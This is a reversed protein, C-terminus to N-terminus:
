GVSWRTHASTSLSVLGSDVEDTSLPVSEGLVCTICLYMGHNGKGGLTLRWTTLTYHSRSLEPADGSTGLRVSSAQDFQNHLLSFSHSRALIFKSWDSPLFNESRSQLPHKWSLSNQCWVFLFSQIYIQGFQVLFGSNDTCIRVRFSSHKPELQCARRTQTQPSIARLSARLVKWSVLRNSGVVYVFWIWPHWLM